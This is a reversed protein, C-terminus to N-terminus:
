YSKLLKERAAASLFASRTLGLTTAADDIAELLGKTMSINAKVPRGQEIVLPVVIFSAGESLTEAVEPLKRLAAIDRPIPAAVDGLDGIWEALAEIANSFAENESKGMATCGPCDPISIGFAGSVGDLLGFFRM